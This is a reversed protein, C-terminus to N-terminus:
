RGRARSKTRASPRASSWDPITVFGLLEVLEPYERHLRKFPADIRTRPYWSLWSFLLLEFAASEMWDVDSSYGCVARAKTRDRFEALNSALETRGDGDLSSCGAVYFLRGQCRNKLQEGLHQLSVKKHGVYVAGPSGHFALFAVPFRDYKKQTWRRLDAVLQEETGVHRHVFSIWEQRELLDLVPLVSQRDTLDSEWYGEFCAVGLPRFRPTAKKKGAPAAKAM